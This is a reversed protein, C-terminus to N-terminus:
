GRVRWQASLVQINNSPSSASCAVRLDLLNDITTSITVPAFGTAGGTSFLYSQSPAVLSNACDLVGTGVLGGSSGISTVWLNINGQQSGFPFPGIASASVAQATTSLVQTSGVYVYFTFTPSGTTVQYSGLLSLELCQNAKLSNAPILLSGVPNTPNQFLSAATTFSALQTCAVCSFITSDGRATAWGTPGRQLSLGPTNGFAADMITGLDAESGSLAAGRVTIMPIAPQGAQSM